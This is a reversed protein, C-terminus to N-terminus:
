AEGTRLQRVLLGARREFSQGLRARAIGGLRSELGATVARQRAIPVTTFVLAQILMLVTAGPGSRLIISKIASKIINDNNQM